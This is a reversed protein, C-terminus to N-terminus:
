SLLVAAEQAAGHLRHGRAAHVLDHVQARAQGGLAVRMLDGAAGAHHVHVVVRDHARVAAGQQGPPLVHVEQLGVGPLRFLQEGEQFRHDVEIPRHREHHQGDQV